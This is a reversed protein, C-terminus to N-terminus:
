NHSFDYVQVRKDGEELWKGDIESSDFEEEFSSEQFSYSEVFSNSSEKVTCDRISVMERQKVIFGGRRVNQQRRFGFNEQKILSSQRLVEIFENIEPKNM